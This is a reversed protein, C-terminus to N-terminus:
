GRCLDVLCGGDFGDLRGGRPGDPFGIGLGGLCGEPLCDFCGSCFGDLSDGCSEDFSDDSGGHDVILETEVHTLATEVTLVRSLAGVVRNLPADEALVMSNASVHAM